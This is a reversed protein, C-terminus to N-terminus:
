APMASWASIRISKGGGHEDYGNKLILHVGPFGLYGGIDTAIIVKNWEADMDLSDSDKKGLESYLSNYEDIDAHIGLELADISLNYEDHFNDVWGWENKGPFVSTRRTFRPVCSM